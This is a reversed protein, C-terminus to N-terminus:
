IAAMFLSPFDSVMTKIFWASITFISLIWAIFLVVGPKWSPYKLDFLLMVGNYIFWIFMICCMVFVLYWFTNLTILDVFMKETENLSDPSSLLEDMFSPIAPVVISFLLGGLGIILMIIGLFIGGARVFTRGAPSQAAENVETKLNFDKSKYNDLNMPQRKMQRKQEATRAAPMAIWLCIYALVPFMFYPGDGHDVTSIFTVFFLIIFILRFLVKDLGFYNGFGSCVGGFVREEINRYLRRSRLDNHTSKRSSENEQQPKEATEPEDQALMKPDGIRRKIERVTEIDVVMGSIYKEKLLEAARAEIDATIEDASADSAFAERIDNLYTGLEVFADEEITFAYGALSINETIKM